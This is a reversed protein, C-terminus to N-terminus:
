LNMPTKTDGAGRLLWNAILDINILPYTLLTVSLYTHAKSIVKPEASGFLSSIIPNKFLFM